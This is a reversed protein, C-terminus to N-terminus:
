HESLRPLWAIYYPHCMSGVIRSPIISFSVDLQPLKLRRLRIARFLNQGNTVDEIEGM